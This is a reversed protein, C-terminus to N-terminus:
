NQKWFIDYYKPYQLIFANVKNKIYNIDGNYELSLLSLQAILELTTEIGVNKIKKNMLGM